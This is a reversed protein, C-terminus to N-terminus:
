GRSHGNSPLMRDVVSPRDHEPLWYLGGAPQERVFLRSFIGNWHIFGWAVTRSPGLILAPTTPSSAHIHRVCRKWRSLLGYRNSAFAGPPSVICSIPLRFANERRIVSVGSGRSPRPVSIPGLFQDPSAASMPAAGLGRLTRSPWVVFLAARGVQVALGQWQGIGASRLASTAARRWALGAAGRRTFRFALVLVASICTFVHRSQFQLSPVGRSVYIM